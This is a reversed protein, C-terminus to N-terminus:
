SFQSYQYPVKITYIINIDLHFLVENVLCFHTSQSCWNNNKIEHNKMWLQKYELRYYM